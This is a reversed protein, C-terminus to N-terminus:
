CTPLHPQPRAPSTRFDGPSRIRTGDAHSELAALNKLIARQLRQEYLSLLNITKAEARFARAEAIARSKDHHAYDFHNADISDDLLNDDMAGARNLRWSDHIIRNTLDLELPATAPAFDPLM